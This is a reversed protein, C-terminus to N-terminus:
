IMGLKKFKRQLEYFSQEINEDSFPIYQLGAINTFEELGGQKLIIVKDFGLRGQFLGAEHIVNQRARSKGETTEDEATMVLIAFSSNDLFENLINIITESTRSEAEFTITELNLEENLYIQLRAWLKSRGHGIFIKGKGKSKLKPKAEASSFEKLLEERSLFNLEKVIKSINRVTKDNKSAEIPPIYISDGNDDRYDSFFDDIKDSYMTIEILNAPDSYNVESLKKVFLQIPSFFSLDMKVSEWLAESLLQLEKIKM